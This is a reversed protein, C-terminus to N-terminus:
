SNNKPGMAWDPGIQKPCLVLSDYAPVNINIAFSMSNLSVRQHCYQKFYSVSTRLLVSGTLFASSECQKFSHSSYIDEPYLCEYTSNLIFSYIPSHITKILVVGLPLFQMEKLKWYKQIVRFSMLAKFSFEAFYEPSFLIENLYPKM